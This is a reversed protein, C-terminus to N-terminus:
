GGKAGKRIASLKVSTAPMAKSIASSASTASVEGNAPAASATSTNADANANNLASAFAQNDKEVEALATMATALGSNTKMKKRLKKAFTNDGGGGKRKGGPKDGGGGGNKKKNHAAREKKGEATKLWDKLEERQDEPLEKFQQKSHWRLDVGTEGRGGHFNIASINAERGGQTTNGRKGRRYPDVEILSSAMADFNTRMNNADARVLGIAAQLASDTNNISDIFYEVRQGPTPVAVTIHNSCETIEDFAVRHNSVHSELPYQRGNWKVNQLFNIRKKAIIRYKEDGAHNSALALFAGRGNKTRSFSKVTSACSTNRVAEEIKM